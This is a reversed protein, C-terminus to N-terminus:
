ALHPALVADLDARVSEAATGERLTAWVFLAGTLVSQVARTLGDVDTRPALEGAAVADAILRRLEDRADRAHAGLHAHFDPDTLDIQLYALHHALTAPSDAMQAQNDAHARLADLPSQHDARLRAFYAPASGAFDAMLALMLGRKSGFRQVLAGATVGAEAAIRGLTVQAPGVQQMVRQTAAIVDADTAKRPRPM